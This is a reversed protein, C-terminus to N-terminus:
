VNLDRNSVRTNELLSKLINIQIRKKNSWDDSTSSEHDSHDVHDAQEASQPPPTCTLVRVQSPRKSLQSPCVM